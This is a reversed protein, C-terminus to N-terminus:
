GIVPNSNMLESTGTATTARAKLPAPKVAKRTADWNFGFLLTTATATDEVAVIGEGTAETDMGTVGVNLPTGVGGVINGVGVNVTGATVTGIVPTVVVNPVDVPTNAVPLWNEATGVTGPNEVVKGPMTEVGM